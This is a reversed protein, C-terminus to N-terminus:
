PRLSMQPSPDGPRELIVILNSRLGALAPFADLIRLYVLEVVCFPTLATEANTSVSQIERVALGASEAHRVIARTTNMAYHTPFVDHEERGELIRALWNKLSQPMMRAITMM